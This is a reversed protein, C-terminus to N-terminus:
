VDGERASGAGADPHWEYLVDPCREENLSGDGFAIARFGRSEYFRRAPANEQFTYLRIPPTIQRRAVELLGTGIAHGVWDPRVYLHDIWSTAAGPSVSLIAVVQGEVVAVTTRGGPILRTRIWERVDDDSHALPACAVLEKRSRLYVDAVADADALTAQRLDPRPAVVTDALSAPGPPADGRPPRPAGTGPDVQEHLVHGSTADVFLTRVGVPQLEQLVRWALHCEHRCLGLELRATTAGPALSGETV